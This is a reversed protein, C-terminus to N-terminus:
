PKKRLSAVTTDKTQKNYTQLEYNLRNYLHIIQGAHGEDNAWLEVYESGKTFVM